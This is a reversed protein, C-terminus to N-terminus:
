YSQLTSLLEPHENMYQDLEETHEKGYNIYEEETIGFREFFATSADEFYKKQKDPDLSAFEELWKKSENKYLITIKVYIEPSFEEIIGIDEASIKEPKLDAEEPEVQKEKVIAKKEQLSAEDM